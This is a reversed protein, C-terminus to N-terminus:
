GNPNTGKLKKVLDVVLAANEPSLDRSADMLVRLDKREMLEQALAATQNDFYYTKGSEDVANGTMLYDVSIGFFDAVIKANKGSILGGRKKWNSLTSQKIGTARSFEAVSIGRESLLKEFMEYM